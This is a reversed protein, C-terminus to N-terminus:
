KPQAVKIDGMFRLVSAPAYVKGDILKVGSVAVDSDNAIFVEQGVILTVKTSGKSMTLMGSKSNYRAKFGLAKAVDEMPLLQGDKSDEVAKVSLEKGNVTIENQHISVYGDFGYKFAIASSVNAQAPFSQAAVNYWILLETGPKIASLKQTKSSNFLKVKTSSSITIYLDQEKNLLRYGGDVKEVKEVEFLQGAGMDMPINAVIVHAGTMPPLSMTMVNDHWAYITEGVKLKSISLKKHSVNDVINTNKGINLIITQQVEGGTEVEIRSNEKDIKTITGWIQTYSSEITPETSAPAAALAVPMMAVMLMTLMLMTGVLSKMTRKM